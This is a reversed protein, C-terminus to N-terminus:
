KASMQADMVNPLCRMAEVLSLTQPETRAVLPAACAREKDPEEHAATELWRTQV